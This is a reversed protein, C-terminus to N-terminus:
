FYIFDKDEKRNIDKFPLPKDVKEDEESLVEEMKIGWMTIHGYLMRMRKIAKAKEEEDTIKKWDAVDEIFAVKMEARNKSPYTKLGKLIARYLARVSMKEIQDM